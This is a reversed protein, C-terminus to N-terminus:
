WSPLGGGHIAGEVRELKELFAKKEVQCEGRAQPFNFIFNVLVLVILIYTTGYQIQCLRLAM